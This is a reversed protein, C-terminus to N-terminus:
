KVCRKIMYPQSGAEDQSLTSSLSLFGKFLQYAQYAWLLSSGARPIRTLWARAAQSSYRGEVSASMFVCVMRWTNWLKILFPSRKGMWVPGSIMLPPFKHNPLPPPLVKIELMPKPPYNQRLIQLRAFKRSWFSGFNCLIESTRSINDFKTSYTSFPTTHQCNLTCIQCKQQREFRLSPM